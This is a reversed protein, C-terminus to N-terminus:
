PSLSPDIGILLTKGPGQRLGIYISAGLGRSCRLIRDNPDWSAIKENVFLEVGMGRKRLDEPLDLIHFRYVLNAEAKPTVSDQAIYRTKTM